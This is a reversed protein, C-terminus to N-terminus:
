EESWREIVWRAPDDPTVESLAADYWTHGSNKNEFNRAVFAGYTDGKAKIIVDANPAYVAGFFDEKAKLEFKQDQGTGYLLFNKPVKTQNNIGSDNGTIFNGDVYMTLSSNPRITIECSQGLWVDGTVYLVVDGKVELKGAVTVLNNPGAVVKEQQLRIGTYQGSDGDGVTVTKGQAFIDTKMDTLPPPYVDIFDYDIGYLVEGDVHTGSKLIIDRIDESVTGTKVWVDLAPNSSHYGDVKTNAMLTLTQKVVIAWDFLGRLRLTAYVKRTAHGATGISEVAYGGLFDGTVAYSCTGECHPLALDTAEPLVDDSWPKDELKENMEGIARALGADAASRAEIQDGTRISMTQAHLGLSLVGAGILLLLVLVSIVLPLAAGRRQLSMEKRITKMYGEKGSFELALPGPALDKCVAKALVQEDV